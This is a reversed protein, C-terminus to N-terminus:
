FCKAGKRGLYAEIVAENQSIDQPKGEAIKEGYNLVILNECINMVLNMDHEILLVNIGRENIKGILNFMEDKEESNMGTAPEDLLLLKPRTALTIGVALRRQSGHPLNKAIIDKEKDLGVFELIRDIQQATEKKSELAKNGGFIERFANGKSHTEHGILVNERVSLEPFIRNAQFTKVLGKAAIKYPRMNQVPEGRFVIQGSTLPYIGTLCNFVTTKGAGNPGIIGTIKKDEVQFSLNNVAKLGGFHKSMQNVELVPM